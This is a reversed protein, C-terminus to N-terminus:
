KQYHNTDESNKYKDDHQIETLNISFDVITANIKEIMQKNKLKM